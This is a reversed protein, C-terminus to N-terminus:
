RISGNNGPVWVSMAETAPCTAPELMPRSMAKPIAATRYATSLGRRPCSAAPPPRASRVTTTGHPRAAIPWQQHDHVHLLHEGVPWPTRRAEPLQHGPDLPQGVREGVPHAERAEDDGRRRVARPDVVVAVPLEHRLGLGRRQEIQDFGEGRTGAGGVHLLRREPLPTRLQLRQGTRRSGQHHATDGRIAAHDGGHQAGHVTPHM